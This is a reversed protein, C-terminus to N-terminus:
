ASADYPRLLEIAHDRPLEPDLWADELERPLIVSMRRQTSAM